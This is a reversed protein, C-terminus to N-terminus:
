SFFCPSCKININFALSVSGLLPLPMRLSVPEIPLHIFMDSLSITVASRLTLPSSLCSGRFCWASYQMVSRTSMLELLVTVWLFLILWQEEKSFGNLLKLSCSASRSRRGGDEWVIARIRIWIWVFLIHKGIKLSVWYHNEQWTM